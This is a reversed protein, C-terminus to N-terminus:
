AFVIRWWWRWARAMHLWPNAMLVAMQYYDKFSHCFGDNGVCSVFM